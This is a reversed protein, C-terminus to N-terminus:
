INKQYAKFTMSFQEAKDHNSLCYAENLGTSSKIEINGYLCIPIQYNDKFRKDPSGNKNVKAWTHGIVNSDSPVAEEELFKQSIFDFEIERIDILGFNKNSDVIAIFAPYIYLDGGNANEFHLADFKSKIIDLNGFGFKIQKRTISESAASRTATKDIKSTSTIDWIKKCTILTKYSDLLEIFSKTIQEDANIDINVYCESLQKELDALYAKKEDRNQKFWKVFIGVIILYSLILFIQSTQISSKAKVIEKKLENKEQFCSLLTDRLEQLGETTTDEVNETSKLETRQVPIIEQQPIEFDQISQNSPNSKKQGGIRKRDYIGTGPLGTNLFTGQKNFNLSAGPVGVTTSIGTKSFNLTVGPFLKVRRRFRM